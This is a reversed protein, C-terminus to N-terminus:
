QNININFINEVEVIDESKIVPPTPKVIRFKGCSTNNLKKALDNRVLSMHHMMVGTLVREKAGFYTGMTRTSDVRCPATKDRNELKSRPKVRAFFPVFGCNRRILFHTPKYGYNTFPCYSHSLGLRIIESKARQFEEKIYFEDCDMTMFHSCQNRRAYKLGINRKKRESTGPSLSLDPIYEVLEDILGERKLNELLSVLNPGAPEGYWSKLQYVVNIYDVQERIAKISSALLEEGDYISYSVGWRARALRKEKLAQYQQERYEIRAARSPM